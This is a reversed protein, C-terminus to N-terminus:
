PIQREKIALKQWDKNASYLAKSGVPIIFSAAVGKFTSKSIAPPAPCNLVVERLMPCKAFAEGGIKKLAVPLEVKNLTACDMFADSGITTVAM